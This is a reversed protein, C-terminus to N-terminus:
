HTPFTGWAPTVVQSRSSDMVLGTVLAGVGIGLVAGAAGWFWPRSLVSDAATPQLMVSLTSVADRRITVAREISAYGRASIGLRHPGPSASHHLTGQGFVQGDVSIAASAVNTDVVITGVPRIAELHVELECASASAVDLVRTANQHGDASVIVTHRGPDLDLGAGRQADHGDVNIRADAPSVVLRCSVVRSAMDDIYGRVEQRRADDVFEGMLTAFERFTALALAFRGTARYALGLNFLVAPTAVLRRSAELEPVASQWDSERIFAVAREFHTRAEDRASQALATRGCLTAVLLTAVAVHKRM